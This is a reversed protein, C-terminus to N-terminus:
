DMSIHYEILFSNTFLIIIIELYIWNFIYLNVDRQYRNKTSKSKKENWCQINKNGFHKELVPFKFVTQSRFIAGPSVSFYYM